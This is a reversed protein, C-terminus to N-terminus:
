MIQSSLSGKPPLNNKAKHEAPETEEEEALLGRLTMITHPDTEVALREKYHAIMSKYIFWPV